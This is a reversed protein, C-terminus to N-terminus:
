SWMAERFDRIEPTEPVMSDRLVERLHQKQLNESVELIYEDDSPTTHDFKYEVRMRPGRTHGNYKAVFDHDLSMYKLRHDNKDTVLHIYTEKLSNNNVDEFVYKTEASYGDASWDLKNKLNVISNVLIANSHKDKITIRKVNSFDYFFNRIYGSYQIFNSSAHFPFM